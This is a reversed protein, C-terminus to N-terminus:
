APRYAHIKSASDLIILSIVCFPLPYRHRVACYEHVPLERPELEVLAYQLLRLADARGEALPQAKRRDILAIQNMGIFM